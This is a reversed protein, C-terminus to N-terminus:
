DSCKHMFESEVTLNYQGIPDSIAASVAPGIVLALGWATGLLAVGFAQNSNDSVESVIAKSIPIVGVRRLGIYYTHVHEFNLGTM